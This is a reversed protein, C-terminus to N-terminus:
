KSGKNTSINPDHTVIPLSDCDGNDGFSQALAIVLFVLAVVGIIIVDWEHDRGNAM